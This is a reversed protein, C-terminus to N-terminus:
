PLDIDGDVYTPTGKDRPFRNYKISIGRFSQLTKREETQFDSLGLTSCIKNNERFKAHTVTAHLLWEVDLFSPKLTEVKVHIKGYKTRVLYSM